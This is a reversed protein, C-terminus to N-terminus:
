ALTAERADDMAKELQDLTKLQPAQDNLWRTLREIQDHALRTFRDTIRQNTQRTHAAVENSLRESLWTALSWGGLVIVDVGGFLHHTAAAVILVLLYPAAETWQTIKKGGPLFKLLSELIRTDRPTANWRKELWSKLEALEEEAIQGAQASEILASQYPPPEGETNWRRLIASGRMADDLRSQLVAFQDTLIARFDPAQREETGGPNLSAASFDGRMVYDWAVRPLRVLMGPAQRLRDLIRQPGMLYLVSRQQMRRQLQETLPNVDVGPVPTEMGRLMAIVRDIERRDERLPAIVQDSLRGLLDGSRNRLGDALAHADAEGLRLLREQLAQLNQEPPPEYGADDRPVIYVTRDSNQEIGTSSAQAASAALQNRLLKAYDDAVVQQECKNMVFLAPLQYRAAVRYYPLLETMQYKEPTVLFLVADGWRFARDAEAHHAPQDGDLDPTDVLTLQRTLDMSLPVVLLSGTKGRAPLENQAATLHEVGLWGPPLQEPKAAVAVPGTTFTRRFSTASINQGLIRNTITSKGTGTGGLMVLVTPGDSPRRRLHFRLAAIDARWREAASRGAPSIHAFMAAVLTDLRAFSADVKDPRFDM